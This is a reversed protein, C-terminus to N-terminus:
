TAPGGARKDPNTHEAFWRKMPPMTGDEYDARETHVAGKATAASSTAHRRGRLLIKAVAIGAAGLGVVLM